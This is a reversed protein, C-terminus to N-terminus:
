AMQKYNEARTKNFGFRSKSKGKRGPDEMPVQPANDLLRIMSSEIGVESISMEASGEGGEVGTVLGSSSEEGGVVQEDGWM